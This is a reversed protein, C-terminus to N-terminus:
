TAVDDDVEEAVHQANVPRERELRERVLMVIWMASERVSRLAGQEDIEALISSLFQRMATSPMPPPYLPAPLGPEDTAMWRPNIAGCFLRPALLEAFRPLSEAQEAAARVFNTIQEWMKPSNKFRGKDRSRYIGYLVLAAAASRKDDTEFSFIM